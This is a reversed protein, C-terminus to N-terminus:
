EDEDDEPAAVHVGLGGLKKLVGHLSEERRSTRVDDEEEVRRWDLETEVQEEDPAPNKGRWSAEVIRGRPVLSDVQLQEEDAEPQASQAPAGAGTGDGEVMRAWVVGGVVVVFVLLMVLMRRTTQNERVEIM